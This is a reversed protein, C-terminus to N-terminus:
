RQVQQDYVSTGTMKFLIEPSRYIRVLLEYFIEEKKLNGDVRAIYIGITSCSWISQCLDFLEGVNPMEEYMVRMSIKDYTLRIFRGVALVFTAYIGIISINDSMAGIISGFTLENLIFFEVKGSEM